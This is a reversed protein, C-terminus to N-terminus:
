EIKKLKAWFILTENGWYPPYIAGQGLRSKILIYDNLFNQIYKLQKPRITEMFEENKEYYEIKDVSVTSSANSELEYIEFCKLDGWGMNRKKGIGNIQLCQLYTNLVSLEDAKAFTCWFLNSTKIQLDLSISKHPGKRENIKSIGAIKGKRRPVTLPHLSDVMNIVKTFDFERKLRLYFSTPLIGEDSEESNFIRELAAKKGLRFTLCTNLPTIFKVINNDQIAPFMYSTQITPTSHRIEKFTDTLYTKRWDEINSFKDLFSFAGDLIIPISIQANPYCFQVNFPPTRFELCLLYLTM